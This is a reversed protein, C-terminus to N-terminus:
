NPTVSYAAPRGKKKGGLRRLSEADHKVLRSVTVEMELYDDKGHNIQSLHFSQILFGLTEMSQLLRKMEAESGGVKFSINIFYYEDVNKIPVSKWNTVNPTKVNLKETLFRVLQNQAAMGPDVGPTRADELSASLKQYEANINKGQKLLRLNDSFKKRVTELDGSVVKQASATESGSDGLFFYGGGGIVILFIVLLTIERSKM